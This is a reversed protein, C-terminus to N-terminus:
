FGIRWTISLFSAENAPRRDAPHIPEGDHGNRTISRAAVQRLAARAFFGHDTRSLISQRSRQGAEAALRLTQPAIESLGAANSLNLSPEIGDEPPAQVGPRSLKSRM